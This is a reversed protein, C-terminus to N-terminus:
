GSPAPSNPNKERQLQLNMRFWAIISKQQLRVREFIANRWEVEHEQMSNESADAYVAALLYNYGTVRSFPGPWRFYGGAEIPGQMPKSTITIIHDGDMMVSQVIPFVTQKPFDPAFLSWAQVQGSLEGYRDIGDGLTNLAGQLLAINTFTGERQVRIDCESTQRPMERPVFQILNSLPLYVVQFLIFMGVGISRWNKVTAPTKESSM